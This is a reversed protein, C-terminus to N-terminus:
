EWGSVDLAYVAILNRSDNLAWYACGNLPNYRLTDNMNLRVEKFEKAESVAAGNENIILAFTSVYGTDVGTVINAAQTSYSFKEWLLLYRGDNLSVIKPHGAHGDTRTYNTLYVPNSCRTLNEDFTLIFLNRPSNRERGYVGAFIYGSSTKALGGMEAYTANAGTSGPFRFANLRVTNSGNLFKGFTFARPYADGHDAFIFGGEIPLVFQNLSHGSFSILNHGTPYKGNTYYYAHGRDIREFTDKDLVFGYSAQHGDFRERSLYVALMSGSLELRCTAADYPVRIGGFNNPPDANLKYVNIKEGNRDYKVMAMNEATRNTARAAYFFYYNGESDKTFAGLSGLENKLILTGQEELNMDYEYVHTTGTSEDSSCVSVSGSSNVFTMVSPHFSHFRIYLNGFNDVSDRSIAYGTERSVSTIDEYVPVSRIIITNSGEAIYFTGEQAYLLDSCVLAAFFFVFVKQRM